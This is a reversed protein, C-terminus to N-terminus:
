LLIIERDFYLFWIGGLVLKFLFDNNKFFYDTSEPAKDIKEVTIGMCGATYSVPTTFLIM